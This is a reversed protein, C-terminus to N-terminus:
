DSTPQAMIEKTTLIKPFSSKQAFHTNEATTQSQLVETLFALMAKKATRHIYQINLCFTPQPGQPNWQKETKHM